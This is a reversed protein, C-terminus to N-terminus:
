SVRPNPMFILPKLHITGHPLPPPLMSIACTPVNTHPPLQHSIRESTVSLPKLSPITINRPRNILHLKSNTDQLHPVLPQPSNTNHSPQTTTTIPSPIPHPPLITYRLLLNTKTERRKSGGFRQFEIISYVYSRFRHAEVHDTSLSGKGQLLVGPRWVHSAGRIYLAM